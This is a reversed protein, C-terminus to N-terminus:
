VIVSRVEAELDSYDDIRKLFLDASRLVREIFSPPRGIPLAEAITESTGVPDQRIRDIGELYASVIADEAERKVIHLGCSSPVKVGLTELLDELRLGNLAATSGVVSRVKGEALLRQAESLDEYYVLEFDRTGLRKYAVRVLVDAASGRRWVATPSRLEPYVALLGRLAGYHARLGRRTLSVLSDAIADAETGEKGFILEVKGSVILPYSVPGPASLVKPRV